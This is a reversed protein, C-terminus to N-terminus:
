SGVQKSEVLKKREKPTMFASEVANLQARRIDAERL